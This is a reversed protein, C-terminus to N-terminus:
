CKTAARRKIQLARRFYEVAEAYQNMDLLCRGLSHLTTALSTDTEANTTAGEYIQLAKRFYQLAETHQNMDLLCRGLEHLTTALSKDTDANTTKQKKIQLARRFYQEAETHQNMDLLCRGLQHLTTALSTDTEANTTAQEDIQLARRFHELAEAYQNMDLLCRGLSHLTTVLSTDTEANTTAGEYIQLARRFHELAETHQNMDLLCRGLEHSTAALSTDTKANTTARKKIQLARRFHELAETPQNMDLLCRGLSHLTAALSTDTEANTTAQKKIQLARRFHEVAETHQNINLLCRGLSHLTAALSSDTEANTTAQKKIQLARRFYEVAETHQNMDLLCRGLSHSTTAINTETEANTTAQEYIELARRFHELAKTPQNMQLLCRGIEHLTTALSTDTEANTTAQKKIQLARRFHKVAETHQNMDLLCRGLSHLTTALSTDTEADTTVREKIQLARRFYELTETPQNMDLLCHGLSHLTTAFSTDTDANTAAREYIQLARRFYENASKSNNLKMYCLALSHFISALTVNTRENQSMQQSAVAQQLYEIAENAKNNKILCKGIQNLTISLTEALDSQKKCRTNIKYTSDNPTTLCNDIDTTLIQFIKQYYKLADDYCQSEYLINSVNYLLDVANSTNAKDNEETSFLSYNTNKLLQLCKDFDYLRIFKTNQLQRMSIPLKAHNLGLCIEISFNVLQPNSYFHSKNLNLRKSIDCQLAYTIQFYNATSRKGVISFLKEVANEDCANAVITDTQSKCQMYWRLRIECALAVAYMQKHKAYATLENMDALKEIVEFCSSSQIKFLRGMAAIFLISSRYIIHKINIETKMCLEFLSNKTAFSKLDDNIQHKVSENREAESQKDLIKVVEASFQDYIVQDGYVFCTKTLIDGLHYGNKLQSEATLYKLMNAVPKILETKWNKQKTPKQRGMPLKCAHPMLGDFSIGRTTIGDFFWNNQITESYFDNLSPIAVNPLITEQLNIVIIHFVVSFWKFYPIILRDIENQTYKKTIEDDLAIIHEFDSYPTIEKRALSGMGIVAFGCPADGMVRHCYKALDNMIKLYSDTVSNQLQRVLIVKQKEFNELEDKTASEIIKPVSQLKQKVNDRLNQFENKVHKAHEILDASQNQAGSKILVYKCLQNLDNEIEHANNTSRAIAANYLAASQILGILEPEQQSKAYYVKGLQHLIRKSKAVDIEQGKQNCIQKLQNILRNEANQFYKGTEAPKTANIEM